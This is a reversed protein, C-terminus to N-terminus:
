EALGSGEVNLRQREARVACSRDLGGILNSGNGSIVLRRSWVLSGRFEDARNRFRVYRPGSEDRAVVRPDNLPDVDAHRLEDAYTGLPRDTVEWGNARISELLSRARAPLDRWAREVVQRGLALHGADNM